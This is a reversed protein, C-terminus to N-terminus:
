ISKGKIEPEYQVEKPKYDAPVNGKCLHAFSKLWNKAGKCTTKNLPSEEGEEYLDVEHLVSWWVRDFSDQAWYDVNRYENVKLSELRELAIRVPEDQISFNYRKQMEEIRQKEMEYWEDERAKVEAKKQEVIKNSKEQMEAIEKDVEELWKEFSM